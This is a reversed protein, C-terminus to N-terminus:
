KVLDSGFKEMDSRDCHYSFTRSQSVMNRIAFDLRAMQICVDLHCSNTKMQDLLVSIGPNFITPRASLIMNRSGLVM